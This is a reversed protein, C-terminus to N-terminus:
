VGEQPGAQRGESPAGFRRRWVATPAVLDAVGGVIGRPAFLVVVILVLGLVTPWRDVYSSLWQEIGIVVGSGVLPGLLTGTGGVIVMVVAFASRSFSGLAPSMFEAQWVALIGACGALLGSLVVAVFKAAAVPYGLSAMRSPSERIGQLTLGFPSRGVQRVALLGFACALATLLFFAGAESVADPRRIGTLGNQGGTVSSAKLAAGYLMVGLALTIMLFVIGSTRMTTVAYLLSALLALGIALALQGALSWERLASWAIGYAAVAAIGAHGMSVLGALGALLNVSAALLAGIFIISAVTLLYPPLILPAVLVAGVIAAGV